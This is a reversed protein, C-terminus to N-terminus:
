LCKKKDENLIESRERINDYGCRLYNLWLRRVLLMCTFLLPFGTAMAGSLRGSHVFQM